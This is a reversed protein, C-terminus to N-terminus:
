VILIHLLFEYFILKLFAIWIYIFSVNKDNLLLNTYFNSQM